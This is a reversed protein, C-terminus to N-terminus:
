RMWGSNSSGTFRGFEEEEEPEEVEAPTVPQAFTLALSNQPRGKVPNEAGHRDPLRRSVM